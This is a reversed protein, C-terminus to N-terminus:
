KTVLPSFCSNELTSNLAAAQSDGYKLKSNPLEFKKPLHSILSFVGSSDLATLFCQNTRWIFLLIVCQRMINFVWWNLERFHGVIYQKALINKILPAIQLNEFVPAYYQWFRHSGILDMDTYSMCGHTCVIDPLVTVSVRWCFENSSSSSSLAYPLVKGRLIEAPEDKYSFTSCSCM